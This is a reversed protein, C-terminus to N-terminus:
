VHKCTLFVAFQMNLFLCENSHVDGGKQIYDM